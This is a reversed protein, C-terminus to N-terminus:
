SNTENKLRRSLTSQSVGLMRAALSQNGEARNLAESIFYEEVEKLTPFPGRYSFTRASADTDEGSTQDTSTGEASGSDLALPKLGLLRRQNDVYTSFSSISLVGRDHRSVADYVMAQLERVNGPFEYTKLYTYLEPPVSPVKKGISSAADALFSDTLIPIDDTRDRLPPLHVRHSM